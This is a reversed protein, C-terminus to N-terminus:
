GILRNKMNCDFHKKSTAFRFLVHDESIGKGDKTLSTEM